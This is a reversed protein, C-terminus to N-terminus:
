IMENVDNKATRICIILHVELRTKAGNSLRKM